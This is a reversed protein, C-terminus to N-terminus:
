GASAILAVGAEEATIWYRGAAAPVIASDYARMNHEGGSTEVRLWGDIVTIAHFSRGGTDREVMSETLEVHELRFYDCDALESEGSVSAPPMPLCRAAQDGVQVCRRAQEIHLERGATAPRDWDYVRYTIDSTQQVEYLFLGPGLAHVTGAPIFCTDGAQAQRRAIVDLTKGAGIAEGFAPEDVGPALGLIIEADPAAELIHWAETKGFHEPGELQRAREDDPHVQVSLWDNADLLKILLPFRTGTRAIALSGLLQEGLRDCLKALTMGRWAPSVIRNEEHIAWSEGIPEGTPALRQGGWVRPKLQPELEIPTWRALDIASDHEASM